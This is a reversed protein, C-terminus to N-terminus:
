WSLCLASVGDSKWTMCHALMTPETWGDDIDLWFLEVKLSSLSNGNLAFTDGQRRHWKVSNYQFNLISLSRLKQQNYRWSLLEVYTLGWLFGLPWWGCMQNVKWAKTYSTVPIVVMLSVVSNPSNLWWRTLLIYQMIILM